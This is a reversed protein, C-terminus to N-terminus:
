IGYLGLTRYYALNGSHGHNAHRSVLITGYIDQIDWQGFNDKFQGSSTSYSVNRDTITTSTLYSM